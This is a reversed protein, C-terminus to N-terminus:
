AGLGSPLFMNPSVPVSRYWANEFACTVEMRSFCPAHDLGADTPGTKGARHRNLPSLLHLSVTICFGLAPKSHADSVTSIDVGQDAVTFTMSSSWTQCCSLGKHPFSDPASVKKKSTVMKLHNVTLVNIHSNPHLKTFTIPGQSTRVQLTKPWGQARM